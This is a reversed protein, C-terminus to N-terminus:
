VATLFKELDFGLTATNASLSTLEITGTITAIRSAGKFTLSQGNQLFHNGPTLTLTNSSINTVTPTGGSATINVGSMVSVDDMIGVASAVDFTSLAASGTADTDNVTTTVDTLEVKLNSLRVNMDSLSKIGSVGYGYVAITDDALDGTQQNNFIMNGLQKTIVGDTVTPLYSLTDIAPLSVDIVTTTFEETVTDERSRTDDEIAVDGSEEDPPIDDTEGTSEVVTTISTSAVYDDLTSNATVNTGSFVLGKSLNHLSSTSKIAWRYYYPPTFTLTEDDNIAISESLTFVKANSGVNIATVTVANDGTKADLTANGTVRDGVAWYSGVDDDMTINTAGGSFDGNVVRNTSRATGAWIDEGTIQRPDGIVKNETYYFDSISPQKDIKISRSSAATVVIKFDKKFRKTGRQGTISDTTISVSGWPTLSNPSAATLTIVSDQYQYLKKQLLNSHSGISSNVDISGDRFRVEEYDVHKTGPKAYLFIDYHDNDTITPFKVSGQYITNGIAAELRSQAAQFAKTTFNYYYSDENKIELIFEAGKNGSISFTRIESEAPLDSLNLNFKKIIKEM